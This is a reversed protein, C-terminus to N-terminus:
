WSHPCRDNEKGSDYWITFKDSVETDDLAEVMSTLEIVEESTAEDYPVFVWSDLIKGYLKAKAIKENVRDYNGQATSLQTELGGIEGQLAEVQGEAANLDSELASIQSRAESLDGQLSTVQAQAADRENLASDYQEQPIGCGLLLLSCLM